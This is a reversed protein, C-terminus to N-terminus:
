PCSGSQPKGTVRSLGDPTCSYCVAGPLCTSVEPPATTTATFCTGAAV